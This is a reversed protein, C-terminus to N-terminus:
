CKRKFNSYLHLPYMIWKQQINLKTNKLPNWTDVLGCIRQSCCTNTIRFFELFLEIPTDGFKILFRQGSDDYKKWTKFVCTNHSHIKNYNGENTNKFFCPSNHKSTLAESLGPCKLSNWVLNQHQAFCAQLASHNMNDLARILPVQHAWNTSLAARSRKITVTLGM